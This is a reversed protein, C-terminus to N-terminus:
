LTGSAIAIDVIQPLRTKACTRMVICFGLGAAAVLSMSVSTTIVIQNQLTVSVFCVELQVRRTHKNYTEIQEQHATFLLKNGQHAICLLKNSSVFDQRADNPLPLVDPDEGYKSEIPFQMKDGSPGHQGGPSIVPTTMEM